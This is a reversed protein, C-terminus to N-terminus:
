KSTGTNRRNYTRIHRFATEFALNVGAIESIIRIDKIIGQDQCGDMDRKRQDKDQLLHSLHSFPM